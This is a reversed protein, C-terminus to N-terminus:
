AKKVPKEPFVVQSTLKVVTATYPAVIGTFPKLTILDTYEGKLKPEFKLASNNAIVIVEQKGKVRKFAFIGDCTELPYYEGDAFIEKENQRIAGLKKYWRLLDKNRNDWPYCRRNFPDEFGETGVEDGYYVCPVGPLMYQIASAIKLAAVAQPLNQVKATAKDERSYVGGNDGLVTLVRATDHTGLINMLNDIVYKPYNNIVFNVTNNLRASDGCRVFNLIDEKFPYNTVSDLEKGLLYERRAGYSIKNSADEWVEGLMLADDKVSKAARSCNEIFKSPLEDAVDLRWGAIGMRTWYRIVGAEGNIFENFVANNENTEPLTNINWWAIYDNPWNKFDYWSYYPSEKSQAAGLSDYTGYKNFYISDAGTHSFVGDLIVRMGKKEAKKILEKLDDENGFDSDVRMYNGADYKHNSRAEFIPNLYICTVGLSKLYALKKTIGKLNGGFFDENLIEGNANPRFEPVGDWDDRYVAYPKTKHREGGIFFRDVMIQYMVGSNLWSCPKFKPDFVTLQWEQGKGYQANLDIDAGVRINETDTLIQFHYFYIGVSNIPLQVDYTQLGDENSVFNMNYDVPQEGDKVLVLKVAAAFQPRTFQIKLKLTGNVELAGTPYKYEKSNPFFMVTKQM